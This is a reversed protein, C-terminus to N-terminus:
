ILWYVLFTIVIALSFIVFILVLKKDKEVDEAQKIHLQILEENNLGHCRPCEDLGIYRLTGCRDCKKDYQNRELRKLEYRFCASFLFFV